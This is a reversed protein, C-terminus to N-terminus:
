RLREANRLTAAIDAAAMSCVLGERDTDMVTKGDQNRVAWFVGTEADLQDTVRWGMRIDARWVTNDDM